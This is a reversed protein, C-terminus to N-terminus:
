RFSVLLICVVALRYRRSFGLDRVRRVFPNKTRAAERDIMVTERPIPPTPPGLKGQGALLLPSLRTPNDSSSPESLDTLPLPLSIVGAAEDAVSFHFFFPRNKSSGSGTPFLCFDQTDLLVFTGLRVFDIAFSSAPGIRSSCLLRDATLPASLLSM